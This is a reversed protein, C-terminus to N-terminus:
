VTSQLDIKGPIAGAAAGVRHCVRLHETLFQVAASLWGDIVECDGDVFFVYDLGAHVELLREFGENRARAATFPKRMDLQVVADALARGRSWPVTPRVPTSTFWAPRRIGYAIRSLSHASEGENRGIVVVGLESCATPCPDRPPAREPARLPCRASRTTPPFPSARAKDVPQHTVPGISPLIRSPGWACVSGISRRSKRM